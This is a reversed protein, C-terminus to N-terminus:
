ECVGTALAKAEASEPFRNRLQSAYSLEAQRDGKKKEICMGLYLAAPSPNNQQMVPRMYSRALDLDGQRYNLLALNYAASPNNPSVLMAQRLYDEARQTDGLSALCKGANIMAIEPKKYLPDRIAADFEPISERARGTTCLFAGWNARLDPDTPALALAQRFSQEAKQNEGMMTYVLGYTGYIKYYTPDLKEADALEQLSIDFQGREYYGAAIDTHLRSRDKPSVEQAKVPPQEPPPVTAAPQPEKSACAAVLLALAGAALPAFLRQM